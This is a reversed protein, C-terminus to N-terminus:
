LLGSLIAHSLFTMAYCLTELPAVQPGSAAKPFIKHLGQVHCSICSNYKIRGRDVNISDSEIARMEYM